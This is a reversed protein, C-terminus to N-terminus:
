RRRKELRDMRQSLSAIALLFNLECDKLSDRYNAEIRRRAGAFIPIGLKRYMKYTRSRVAHVSVNWESAMEKRTKGDRIGQYAERECVTLKSLDFSM